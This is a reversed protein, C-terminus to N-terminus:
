TPAFRGINEHLFVAVDHRMFALVRNTNGFNGLVRVWRSTAVPQHHLKMNADARAVVRYNRDLQMLYEENMATWGIHARVSLIWVKEPPMFSCHMINASVSHGERMKFQGILMRAEEDLLRDEVFLHGRYTFRVRFNQISSAAYGSPGSLVDEVDCYPLALRWPCGGSLLALRAVRPDEAMTARFVSLYSLYDDTKFQYKPVQSLGVQLQRQHYCAADDAPRIQDLRKPMLFPIGQGALEMALDGLTHSQSRLVLLVAAPDVICIVGLTEFQPRIREDVIWCKEDNYVNASKYEARIGPPKSIEEITFHTRSSLTVILDDWSSRALSYTTPPLLQTHDKARRGLREAFDWIQAFDQSTMKEGSLMDQDSEGAAKVGFFSVAARPNKFHTHVNLPHYDPSLGRWNWRQM